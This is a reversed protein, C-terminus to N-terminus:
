QSYESMYQVLLKANNTNDTAEDLQIALKLDVKIRQIFQESIDGSIACIRRSVTNNSLPIKQMENAVNKGYVIETMRIATPLM